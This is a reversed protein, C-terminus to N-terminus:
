AALGNITKALRSKYRRATNEKIVGKQVSKDILGFTEPLLTKADAAKGTAIAARLRKMQTKLKHRNMQNILRRRQSQRYRKIASPHNAM